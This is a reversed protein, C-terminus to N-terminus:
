QYDRVRVVDQGGITWPPNKRLRAMIARLEAIGEAGKRTINVQSSVFLGYRRYLSELHALVTRGQARLVATLEAFVGAASIGDKDRGLEGVTYGLAEAFGFLFRWGKGKKLDM